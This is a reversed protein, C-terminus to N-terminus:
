VLLDSCIKWKNTTNLATNRCYKVVAGDGSKGTINNLKIMKLINRNSSSKLVFRLIITNSDSIAILM